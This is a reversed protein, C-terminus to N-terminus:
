NHALLGEPGKRYLIVAGARDVPMTMLGRRHLDDIAEAYALHIYWCVLEGLSEPANSASRLSHFLQKIDASRAAVAALLLQSTDEVVEAWAASDEESLFPIGLEKALAAPDDGRGAAVAAEFRQELAARAPNYEGGVINQGFTLLHWDAAPLTTDNQGYKGLDALDGEVVWFYYHADPTDPGPRHPASVLLSGDRVLATLLGIDLIRSGVMMLAQEEFPHTDAISLEQYAARLEGWHSQLIDALAVGLSAACARVRTTEDGNAILFTAAYRDGRRRILSAQQLPELEAVVEQVSLGFTEALQELSLDDQLARLMQLRRRTLASWPDGSGALSPRLPMKEYPNSGAAAWGGVLLTLMCVGAGISKAPNSM